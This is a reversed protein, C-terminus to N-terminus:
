RALISRARRAMQLKPFGTARSAAFRLILKDGQAQPYKEVSRALLGQLTGVVVARFIVPRLRLLASCAWLVQWLILLPMLRSLKRSPIHRRLVLLRNRVCRTEKLIPSRACTASHEHRILAAPEFLVRWGRSWLRFGLDVDDVYIFLREWFITKGDELAARRLLTAGGCPFLVEAREAFLSAPQGLGRDWSFGIDDVAGGASDLLSQDHVNRMSSTVAGIGEGMTGLLAALWGDQAVCDNNVLLLYECDTRGAAINNAATFGTNTDLSILRVEPFSTRVMDCSGDRSGNDVVIIETPAPVQAQLSKLCRGLMERGNLNPIIAAVRMDSIPM